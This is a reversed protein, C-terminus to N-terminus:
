PQRGGDKWRKFLAVWEPPWREEGSGPPPMLGQSVQDFVSQANDPQKMFDYSSLDVGFGNMHDIDMKTFLPLIDAAFSVVVKFDPGYHQSNPDDPVLRNKMIAQAKAALHGMAGVATGLKRQNEQSDEGKWAEELGAVVATFVQNFDQVDPRDPYGGPPVKAVPWCDPLPVPDGKFDFGGDVQKLRKGHFIEGFRYFHALDSHSSDLLADPTTATGEGQDKITKIAAEVGDITTLKDFSERVFSGDDGPNEVSGTSEVRLNLKVQGDPSLHLQVTQFAHLIADYFDGITHPAGTRQALPHEPREIDMYMKASEISLGALYVCLDDRVGGPLHGPYDPVRDRLKPSVKLAKLMNCALGLHLMEERVVSDILRFVEGSQSKISWMGSLYVPLTALELEVAVQLSKKLWDEDRIPEEVELLEVIRRDSGATGAV